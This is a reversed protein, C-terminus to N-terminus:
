RQWVGLNAADCDEIGVLARQPSCPQRTMNRVCAQLRSCRGIGNPNLKPDLKPDLIESHSPPNRPFRARLSSPVVSLQDYESWSNCETLNALLLGLFVYGLSSYAGGTGPSFLATKGSLRIVDFPTYGRGSFTWNRLVTDDYDPLGSRMTLLQRITVGNIWAGYIEEATQGMEQVLYSNVYPWVPDDLNLKGKSSFKAVHAATWMKTLSGMAIRTNPTMPLSRAPDAFGAAYSYKATKHVLGVSIAANWKLSQAKIVTPLFKTLRAELAQDASLAVAPHSEYELGKVYYGIILFVIATSFAIMRTSGSGDDVQKRQNSEIQDAVHQQWDGQLVNMEALPANVQSEAFTMKEEEDGDEAM